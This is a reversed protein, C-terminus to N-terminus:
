ATIGVTRRAPLAAIFVKTAFSPQTTTASSQVTTPIVMPTTTTPAPKNFRNLVAALTQVQTNTTSATTTTQSSASATTTGGTLSTDEGDIGAQIPLANSLIAYAAHKPDTIACASLNEEPNSTCLGSWSAYTSQDAAPAGFIANSAAAAADTNDKPAGTNPDIEGTDTLNKVITAPDSVTDNTSDLYQSPIGVHLACYPSAAWGKLQSDPCQNFQTAATAASTNASLLTSLSGTTMSGIMSFIGSVSGMDSYYPLFQGVFSGLATNPNSADLPSTTARDAQAYALNVEQADKLSAVATSVSMPMNGAAIATKSMMYESGSVIMDGAAEGALGKTFDGLFMKLLSEYVTPPISNVVLDALPSALKQLASGLVGGVIVNIATGVGATEPALAANIAAGTVPSTAVSCFDKKETSSLVATVGGLVTAAALGPIASKYNNNSPVTDGNTVSRIGFSDTASKGNSGPTTILSGMASTETPTADGAQVAGAFALFNAAYAVGQTIQYDRAVTVAIGPIDTAICVAGAALGVADGKGSQGLQSIIKEVKDGFLKRIVSKMASDGENIASKAGVDPGASQADITEQMKDPAVDKFKDKGNFGLLRKVKAFINDALTAFRPNYSKMMAAFVKPDDHMAQYIQDAPIQKPNGHEDLIDNFVLTTPRKNPFLGATRVSKGASDVASINNLEMQGLEYNSPRTFKCLLTMNQGCVGSTVTSSFKDEIVKYTIKTSSTLRSNFLANGTLSQAIWVPLISSASFGIGLFSGIIVILVIVVGLPGKQGSLLTKIAKKENWPGSNNVNWGPASEAAQPDEASPGNFSKDLDGAEEQRQLDSLDPNRDHEGTNSFTKRANTDGPNLDAERDKLANAM